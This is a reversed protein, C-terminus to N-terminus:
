QWDTLSPALALSRYASQPIEGNASLTAYYAFHGEPPDTFSASGGIPVAQRRCLPCTPRGHCAATWESFCSRCFSHACSTKHADTPLEEQCIPCCNDEAMLLAERMANINFQANEMMQKGFWGQRDWDIGARLNSPICDEPLSERAKAVGDVVQEIPKYYEACEADTHTADIARLGALADEGRQAAEDVEEATSASLSRYAATNGLCAPNAPVHARMQRRSAV